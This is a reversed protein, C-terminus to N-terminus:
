VSDRSFKKRLWSWYQRIRRRYTFAGVFIASLSSMVWKWEEYLFDKIERPMSVDVSVDKKYSAVQQSRDKGEEKIISWIQMTLIKKGARLPVVIWEWATVGENFVLQQESMGEPIVKFDSGSLLRARIEGSAKVTDVYKKGSPYVKLKLVSESDERSAVLKISYEEGVIMEEPVNFALHTRKFKRQLDEVERDNDVSELRNGLSSSAAKPLRVDASPAERHLSVLSVEANSGVLNEFPFGANVIRNSVPNGISSSATAGTERMLIDSKSYTTAASQNMQLMAESYSSGTEVQVASARMNSDERLASRLPVFTCASIIGVLVVVIYKSANKM